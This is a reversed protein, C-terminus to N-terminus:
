KINVGYEKATQRIIARGYNDKTLEFFELLTLSDTPKLDHEKCWQQRGFECSGTLKHHWDFLDSYAETLSPHCEVFAKIREEAPQGAM